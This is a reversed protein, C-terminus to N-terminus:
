WLLEKDNLLAEIAATRTEFIHSMCDGLWSGHGSCEEHFKSEFRAPDCRFWIRVLPYEPPLLNGARFRKSSVAFRSEEYATHVTLVFLEVNYIQRVMHLATLRLSPPQRRCITCACGEETPARCVCLGRVADRYIAVCETCNGSDRWGDSLARHDTLCRM